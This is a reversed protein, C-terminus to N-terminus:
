FSRNKIIITKIVFAESQVCVSVLHRLSPLYERGRRCKPKSAFSDSTLMGQTCSDARALVSTDQTRASRKSESGGGDGTAVKTQSEIARRM